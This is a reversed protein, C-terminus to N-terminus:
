AEKTGEEKVELIKEEKTKEKVEWSRGMYRREDITEEESSDYLKRKSAARAARMNSVRKLIYVAIGICMVQMAAISALVTVWIIKNDQFWTHLHGRCAEQKMRRTAGAQSGM